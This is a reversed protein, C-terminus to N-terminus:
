AAYGKRKFVYDQELKGLCDYGRATMLEVMRQDDYNNEVTLLQIRYRDHDLDALISLESGETDISCYDIEFLGHKDLLTCLRTVPAKITQMHSAQRHIRNVHRPDLNATLGSLMKEDIGADSELFDAEGEFDAVCVPECAATRFAALRAFASPLPEVCLGRWGMYREFFLSNSFTLGDYAGIDVFVGGRRDKFFHEYLYRDQGVQSFFQM